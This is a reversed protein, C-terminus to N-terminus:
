KEEETCTMRSIESIRHTDLLTDATRIWRLTPANEFVDDILADQNQSVLDALTLDKIEDWPTRSDTVERAVSYMIFEAQEPTLHGAFTYDKITFNLEKPM